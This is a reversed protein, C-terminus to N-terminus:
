LQHIYFYYTLDRSTIINHHLSSSFSTVTEGHDSQKRDVTATFAISCISLLWLLLDVTTPLQAYLPIGDLHDNDSSLQAMLQRSLYHGYCIPRYMCVLSKSITAGLSYNLVTTMYGLKSFFFM